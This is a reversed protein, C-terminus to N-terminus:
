VMTRIGRKKSKRREKHPLFPKQYKRTQKKVYKLSLIKIIEEDIAVVLPYEHILSVMM